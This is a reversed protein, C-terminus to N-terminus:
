TRQNKQPKTLRSSIAEILAWERRTKLFVITHLLQRTIMLFSTLLNNNLFM